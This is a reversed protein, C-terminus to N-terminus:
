GRWVEQLTKRFLQNLSSYDPELGKKNNKLYADYKTAQQQLFDVIISNKYERDTEQGAMKKALLARIELTIREDLPQDKLLKEFEMPPMTHNKEIWRCALIPRLIYFYKKIKIEGAQGIEKLHKQAIHLYHYLAPVPAFYTTLLDRMEQSFQFSEIYVIPSSLWELLPPNSKKYLQLAKRIDWGNIDLLDNIPYEIFDKKTDVSLYWDRPQIYIFRVDYDSDQSAFGWGRSGSEVAYLIKVKHETEIEQLKKMISSFM